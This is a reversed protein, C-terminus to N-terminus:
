PASGEQPAAAKSKKLAQLEPQLRHIVHMRASVSGRWFFEPNIWVRRPGGGPLLLGLKRLRAVARSVSQPTTELKNAIDTPSYGTHEEFDSWALLLFLVSAERGTLNMQAVEVMAEAYWLGFANGSKPKDARRQKIPEESTLRLVQGTYDDQYDKTVRRTTKKPADPM